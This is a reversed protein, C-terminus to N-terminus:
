WITNILESLKRSGENNKEIVTALVISGIILQIDDDSFVFEM